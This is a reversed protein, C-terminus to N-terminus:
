DGIRTLTEDYTGMRKDGSNLNEISDAMKWVGGSHSKGGDSIDRSIFLLKKKHKYIKQKTKSYEGKVEEYDKPVEVDKDLIKPKEKKEVIKELDVKISGLQTSIAVGDKTYNRSFKLERDEGGGKLTLTIDGYGKTKDELILKDVKSKIEDFVAKSAKDKGAVLTDYNKLINSIAEKVREIFGEDDTMKKLENEATTDSFNISIIKFKDNPKIEVRVDVDGDKEDEKASNVLEITLNIGERLQSQYQMKLKDAEAQLRARFTTFDEGEQATVSKLKSEIEKAIAEHKARDDDNVQEENEAM